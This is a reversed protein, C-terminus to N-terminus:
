VRANYLVSEDPEAGPRPAAPAAPEAAFGPMSRSLSALSSTLADVKASGRDLVSEGLAEELAAVAAPDFQSGACRRLEGLADRVPMAARYSRTSTMADYADAVAIIRAYFPIRGGTLGDPYGAGDLREHHHLVADRVEGSFDLGRVLDAGRKAHQRMEAYEGHDLPGAKRLLTSPVGLKGVDHLAAAHALVTVRDEPLGLRRGILAAYEAVRESHGRTYPDKVEIARLFAQVAAEQVAARASRRGSAVRRTAFHVVPPPVLLMFVAGVHDGRQWFDAATLGVAICALLYLTATGTRPTLVGVARGRRRLSEGLM